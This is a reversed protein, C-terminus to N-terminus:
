DHLWFLKRSFIKSHPASMRTQSESYALKCVSTSINHRGDRTRWVLELWGWSWCWCSRDRWDQIWVSLNLVSLSLYWRLTTMRPDSDCLEAETWCLELGFICDSSCTLPRQGCPSLLLFVPALYAHSWGVSEGGCCYEASCRFCYEGTVHWCDSSWTEAVPLAPSSDSTAQHCLQHWCSIVGTGRSDPTTQSCSQLCDCTTILWLQNHGILNM